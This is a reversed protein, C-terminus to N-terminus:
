NLSKAPLTCTFYNIRKRKTHVKKKGPAAEAATLEKFDQLVTMNM